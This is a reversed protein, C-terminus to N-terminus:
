STKTNTLHPGIYGVVVVGLDSTRDDLYLRPSVSGKTQIAVHTLMEEIGSPNVAEPVRFRREQMWDKRGRVTESESPRFRGKPILHAGAPAGGGLYDLLSGEFRQDASTRHLAFEDLTVLVDWTMRVWQGVPDKPALESAGRWCDEGFCLHPFAEPSLSQLDEWSDPPDDYSSRSPVEFSESPDVGAETMRKRARDLQYRLSRAEDELDHVEDSLLANDMLMDDIERQFGAVERQHEESRQVAATEAARLRGATGSTVEALAARLDREGARAQDLQARLASNEQRLAALGPEGDKRVGQRGPGPRTVDESPSLAGDGAVKAPTTERPPLDKGPADPHGPVTAPAPATATAPTPTDVRTPCSPSVARAEPPGSVSIGTIEDLRMATVVDLRRLFRDLPVSNAHERCLRAFGRRLDEVRSDLVLSTASIARHRRGDEPDDLLAGPRFIRLGFVPVTHSGSVQANFASTAEPSLVFVAAQGVTEHTVKELSEIWASASVTTDTGSLFVLGHHDTEALQVVLDDLDEPFLLRPGDSVKFGHDDCAFSGLINGALGPPATYSAGGIGFRSTDRPADVEVAVQPRGQPDRLDVGALLTTAWREGGRVSTAAADSRRHRVAHTGEPERGVGSGDQARDRARPRPPDLAILKAYDAGADTTGRIYTVEFGNPFVRTAGPELTDVGDLRKQTRLWDFGERLVDDVAHERDTTTTHELDIAFSSRYGLM